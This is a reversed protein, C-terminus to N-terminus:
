GKSLHPPFSYEAPIPCDSRPLAPIAPVKIHQTYRKPSIGMEKTFSKLFTNYDNFGCMGCVEIVPYGQSLYTRALDLRKHVIYKHLTTGTSIKFSKCLYSVSVYFQDALYRLNLDETLHTDIYLLLSAIMRNPDNYWTANLQKILSQFYANVETEEFSQILPYEPSIFIVYNTNQVKEPQRITAVAFTKTKMCAQLATTCSDFVHM